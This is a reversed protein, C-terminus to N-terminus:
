NDGWKYKVDCNPCREPKGHVEEDCGDAPCTFIPEGCRGCEDEDTVYSDKDCSGCEVHRVPIEKGEPIVFKNDSSKFLDKSCYKRSQDDTDYRCYPNGPVLSKSLGLDKVVIKGGPLHDYLGAGDSQAM